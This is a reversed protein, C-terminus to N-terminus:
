IHRTNGGGGLSEAAFKGCLECLKRRIYPTGNSSAKTIIDMAKPMDGQQQYYLTTAEIYCARLKEDILYGGNGAKFTEMSSSILLLMEVIEPM